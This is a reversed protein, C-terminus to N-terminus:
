RNGINAIKARRGQEKTGAAGETCVIRVGTLQNKTGGRLNGKEQTHVHVYVPLTNKTATPTTSFLNVVM